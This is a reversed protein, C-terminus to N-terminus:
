EGEEEARSKRLDRVLRWGMLASGLGILIQWSLQGQALLDTEFGPVFHVGWLVMVSAPDTSNAYWAWAGAGLLLGPALYRTLM